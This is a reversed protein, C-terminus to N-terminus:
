KRSGFRSLKLTALVFTLSDAALPLPLPALVGNEPRCRWSPESLSAGAAATHNVQRDVPDFELSARGQSSSSRTPQTGLFKDPKVLQGSSVTTLCMSYAFAAM